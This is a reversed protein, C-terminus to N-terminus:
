TGCFLPCDQLASLLAQVTPSAQEPPLHMAPDTALQSSPLAQVLSEQLLAVPQAGAGSATAHVSPLGHVRPSMQECPTHVGPLRLSQLSPLAQVMSLQLTAVLAQTLLALLAVHSSPLAHVAFSVQAAPWHEPDAM